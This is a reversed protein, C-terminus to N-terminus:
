WPTVWPSSQPDGMVFFSGRHSVWGFRWAVHLDGVTGSTQVEELVPCSSGPIGRFFTPPIQQPFTTKVMSDARFVTIVM